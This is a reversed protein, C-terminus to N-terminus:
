QKKRGSYTSYSLTGDSNLLFRRGLDQESVLATEDGKQFNFYYGGNSNYSGSPGKSVFTFVLLLVIGLLPLLFM